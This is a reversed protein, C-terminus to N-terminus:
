IESDVLMSTVGFTDQPKHKWMVSLTAFGEVVSEKEDYYIRKEDNTPLARITLFIFNWVNAAAALKLMLM